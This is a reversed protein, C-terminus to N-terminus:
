CGDSTKTKPLAVEPAPYTEAFKETGRVVLGEIAFTESTTDQNVTSVTVTTYRKVDESLYEVVKENVFTGQSCEDLMAYVEFVKEPCSTHYMKVLVICLGGDGDENQVASVKFTVGHLGTPHEKGCTDCKRKNPCDKVLHGKGYCAFCLKAKFLFDKKERMSKGTFQTCNDLDHPDKCLPCIIRIKLISNEKVETGCTKVKADVKDKFGSRSYVPDNLAMSEEEIFDVFHKFSAETGTNKRIKGVRFTWKDQLNTPLALQVKRITLPSDFDVM